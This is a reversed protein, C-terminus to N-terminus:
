YFYLVDCYALHVLFRPAIVYIHRSNIVVLIISQKNLWNQM